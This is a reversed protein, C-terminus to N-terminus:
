FVADKAWDPVRYDARYITQRFRRIPADESGRTTRGLGNSGLERTWYITDANNEYRYKVGGIEVIFYYGFVGIEDFRYHGHWHERAGDVIRALPVRAAERYELVEQPGELRREDVVLMVASVGPLADLNFAVETGMPQAGFPTKDAS